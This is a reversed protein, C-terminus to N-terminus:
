YAYNDIPNTPKGVPSGAILDLGGHHLGFITSIKVYNIDGTGTALGPRLNNISTPSRISPAQYVGDEIGNGTSKVSLRRLEDKSLIVSFAICAQNFRTIPISGRRM